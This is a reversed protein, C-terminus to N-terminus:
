CLVVLVLNFPIDLLLLANSYWLGDLALAKWFIFANVPLLVDKWHLMWNWAKVM